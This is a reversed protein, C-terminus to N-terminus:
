QREWGDRAWAERDYEEREDFRKALCEDCYSEVMAPHSEFTAGCGPCTRAIPRHVARIDILPVEPAPRVRPRPRLLGLLWRWWNM